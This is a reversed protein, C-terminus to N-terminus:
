LIDLIVSSLHFLYLADRMIYLILDLHISM